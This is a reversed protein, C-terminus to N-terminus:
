KGYDSAGLNPYRKTLQGKFEFPKQVRCGPSAPSGGPKKEGGANNCDFSPLIGYEAGAPSSIVGLPNLYANGRNSALRTPHIAATEPGQPGFQRLYHGTGGETVNPVKASTAVGLNAFMDSLTAVHVSIYELIPNVQQLFPGLETLVPTLGDFVDATAPLSRKSVTILPDFNVFFRELDPGLEGLDRLTPALDHLVPQMDRVLPRAKGSFTELRAMTARQEDLFTPFIRWTEAFAEQENSIATFVDDQADVLRRLQDERETLAGFVVGTNEVLAGLTERQEDLEAFLDGGAEVFQPLNGFADNIDQGRGEAADGLDQQWTRFAKRTYPDLAGLLEDLEVAASVRSADLRGGEPVSPADRSGLTLEIFTEGLLTKQRLQAKADVRLPAYERELEVTAVTRNAEQRKARVRGIDVGSARVEAEVALQTAEPFSIDVRYGKPKLPIPGGFSLWLFLLLGFCSLAFVVMSLLRGLTPAQKQV